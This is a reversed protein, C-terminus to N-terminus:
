NKKFDGYFNAFRAHQNQYEQIHHMLVDGQVPAIVQASLAHTQQICVDNRFKV